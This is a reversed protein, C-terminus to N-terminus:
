IRDRYRVPLIEIKTGDPFQSLIREWYKKEQIAYNDKKDTYTSDSVRAGSRFVAYLITDEKNRINEVM